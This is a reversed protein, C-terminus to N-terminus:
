NRNFSKTSSWAMINSEPICIAHEKEGDGGERNMVSINRHSNEHRIETPLMDLRFPHTVCM